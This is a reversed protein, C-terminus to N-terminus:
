CSAGVRSARDLAKLVPEVLKRFATSPILPRHGTWREDLLLEARVSNDAESVVGESPVLFTVSLAIGSPDMGAAGEVGTVGLDEGRGGLTTAACIVLSAFAARPAHPVPIPVKKLLLADRNEMDRLLLEDVVTGGGVPLSATVTCDFSSLASGGAGITALGSLLWVNTFPSGPPISAVCATYVRTKKVIINMMIISKVILRLDHSVSVQQVNDQIFIAM